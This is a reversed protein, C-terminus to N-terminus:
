VRTGSTAASRCYIVGLSHEAERGSGESRQTSRSPFDQLRDEQGTQIPQKAHLACGLGRGLGGDIGVRGAVPQDEIRVGVRSRMELGAVLRPQSRRDLPELVAALDRELLGVALM